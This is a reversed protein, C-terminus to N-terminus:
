GQLKRSIARIHDPTTGCCGGVISVGAAFLRPVEEAMREPTQNYVPKGEEIVPIGANPQAIIPVGVDGMEEIIWVAEEVGSCCNTGVIAAGADRLAAGCDAPRHGMVTRMGKPSKQFSMTAVIPRESVERIGELALLAENVDTMTEVVFFDIGESDLHGGVERFAERVDSPEADGYPKLLAGTPGVSGAILVGNGVAERAAAVGNRVIEAIREELRYRALGIRNAGFTNTTVYEAGADAYTKHIMRVTEPKELNFREPCEGFELGHKQLMTGMAGDGLVTRSRALEVINM